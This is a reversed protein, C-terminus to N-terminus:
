HDGETALWDELDSLMTKLLDASPAVQATRRELDVAAILDREVEVRRTSATVGCLKYARKADRASPTTLYYNGSSGASVFYLTIRAPLDTLFSVEEETMEWRDDVDQKLMAAGKM